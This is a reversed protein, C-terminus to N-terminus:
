YYNGHPLLSAQDIEKTIINWKAIRVNLNNWYTLIDYRKYINILKNVPSSIGAPSLILSFTPRVVKSYGILQSIDKLSISNLKCEVFALVCKE